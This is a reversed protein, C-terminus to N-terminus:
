RGAGPAVSGAEADGAADPMPASVPAAAADAGALADKAADPMVVPLVGPQGALEGALWSTASPTLVVVAVDGPLERWAGIAQVRDAAPCVLAGALAYGGIRLPEGIVAVRLM